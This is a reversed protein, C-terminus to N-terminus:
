PLRRSSGLSAIRGVLWSRDEEADHRTEGMQELVVVSCPLVGMEAEPRRDFGDVGLSVAVVAM